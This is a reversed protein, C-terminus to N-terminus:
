LERLPMENMRAMQLSFKTPLNELDVISRPRNKRLRKPTEEKYKKLLSKQKELWIQYERNFEKLEKEAEKKNRRWAALLQKASESSRKIRQAEAEYESARMHDAFRELQARDKIRANIMSKIRAREVALDRRQTVYSTFRALIDNGERITQEIQALLSTQSM